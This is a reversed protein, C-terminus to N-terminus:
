VSHPLGARLGATFSMSTSVSRSCPTSTSFASRPFEALLEAVHRSTLRPAKPGSKLVPLGTLKDRGIRAEQARPALPSLIIRGGEIAAKLSDGAHLGLKRRIPGPLVVQGKSSLKRRCPLVSKGTKERRPLRPHCRDKDGLLHVGGEWVTHFTASAPLRADEGTM